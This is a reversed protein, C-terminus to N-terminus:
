HIKYFVMGDFRNRGDALRLYDLLPVDVVSGADSSSHHLIRGDILLGEHSVLYGKDINARDVFAVGCLPPLGALLRPTVNETPLYPIQVARRWPIPLLPEGNAGENLVVEARRLLSDPIYRGTIEEFSPSSLIRDATFHFRDEYTARGERYHLGIMRERAEDLSRARILAADTLVLVTCDAQDLRFVPDRDPEREEGLCGLKYPTGRRLRTLLRLRETPGLAGWRDGALFSDIESRNAAHLVPGPRALSDAAALHRRGEEGRGSEVLIRGLNRRPSELNPALRISEELYRIATERDGSEMALLALDNRLAGDETLIAAAREMERRAEERDGVELLRYALKRRISGRDPAIELAARYEDIAAETEGREVFLAARNVHLPLYGDRMPDFEIPRLRYAVVYTSAFAVLLIAMRSWRRSRIEAGTMRVAEAAFLILFPAAALRYRSFIYFAVLGAFVTMLGAYAVFLERFRRISAILGVLGFITIVGFTIPFLRLSGFRDRLYYFNENDPLELANWFLLAKRGFLGAADGPKERIWHFAEGYWYRSIASPAPERGLRRVTEARFDPEEYRPDPRVFPLQTYTGRATESNGIYFNQGGQSTILVFDGSVAANRITVPAIAIVVGALFLLVRRASAGGPRVGWGIGITAAVAFLIANERVLATLGILVGAVLTAATGRGRLLLLLGALLLFIGLASKMIQAEYFPFPGYLAAGIGAIRGTTTGFLTRGVEALFVVSLAGLLVQVLRVANYDHGALRYIAALFYPYLPAQYFPRVEGESRGELIATAKTDYAKPDLLLHDRFEYEELDHLYFLRL